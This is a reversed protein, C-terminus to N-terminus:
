GCKAFMSTLVRDGSKRRGKEYEAFEQALPPKPALAARDTCRTGFCKTRFRRLGFESPIRSNM